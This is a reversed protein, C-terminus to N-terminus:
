NHAQIDEDSTMDFEKAVIATFKLVTPSLLMSMILCKAKVQTDLQKRNTM